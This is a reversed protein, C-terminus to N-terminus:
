RWALKVPGSAGFYGDVALVYTLGAYATFKIRSQYIGYGIDNNAAVRTLAAVSSGRYAALVTDFNSGVTEFTVSGTAPARWRYWISRGGPVGAHNPEGAEKTADVNTGTVTGSSGAVSQAGAFMDNPPALSVTWTRSAPTADTNGASDTAAVSFTHTGAALDSYAQPSTCPAAAANDLSCAFTAAETATFSFTASTTSVTGTPGDTITTEPPTTDVVTWSYSAPSPDANGVADVARVSFTHAGPSLGTYSMPSMCAAYAAGDLSCEFTTTTESAVFQFTASESSVGAPTATLTTEPPTNDVTVTVSSTATNRAADVSRATVTVPGSAGSSWDFSYPSVAKGAVVVGNVLYEVKGVGVDDSATATLTVVGHVTAGTTPSTLTVTPPTTDPCTTLTGARTAAAADRIRALSSKASDDAYYPGSQWGSLASEDSVHFVLLGIVNPQCYAVKFAEEYLAAQAAEEVPRTATPEVGTYLSL